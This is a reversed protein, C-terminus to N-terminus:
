SYKFSGGALGRAWGRRSFHHKTLLLKIVGVIVVSLLLTLFAILRLWDYDGIYLKVLIERLIFISAVEAM